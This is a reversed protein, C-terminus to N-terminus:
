ITMAMTATSLTTATAASSRIQREGNGGAATDNGGFLWIRDNGSTGTKNDNGNGGYIDAM